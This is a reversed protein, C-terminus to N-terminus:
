LIQVHVGTHLQTNSFQLLNKWSVRGPGVASNDRMWMEHGLNPFSVTPGWRFNRLDRESTMHAFFLSPPAWKATKAGIPSVYLHKAPDKEWFPLRITIKIIYLFSSEWNTILQVLFGNFHGLQEM